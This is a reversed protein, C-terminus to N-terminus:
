SKKMTGDPIGSPQAGSGAVCTESAKCIANEEVLYIHQIHVKHLSVQENRTMDKIFSDILMGYVRQFHWHGSFGFTANRPGDGRSSAVALSGNGDNLKHKDRKGPNTARRWKNVMM